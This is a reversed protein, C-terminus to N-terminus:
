EGECEVDPLLKLGEEWWSRLVGSRMSNKALGRTAENLDLDAVLIDEGFFTAEAIINGDPKVVRSQGHSGGPLTIAQGHETKGWNAPTNSQVIFVSNEVARAQVQARYPELKSESHLSSESSTYFIVQAGAIVPLRVLEPYRSDHCIIISCTVGCLRFLSLRKGPTPWSEALQVKAYREVLKGESDWVLAGNYLEGDEYYPMGVVAAISFEDCMAAVSREAEKLRDDTAAMVCNGDYSTVACEPFVAVEVEQAALNELCERMRNLNDSIDGSSRFQVSAVRLTEKQTITKM